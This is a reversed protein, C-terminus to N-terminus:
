NIDMDGMLPFIVKPRKIKNEGELKVLFQRFSKDLEEIDKRRPCKSEIRCKRAQVEAREYFNFIEQWSPTGGFKLVLKIAGFCVRKELYLCNKRLQFLKCESLLLDMEVFDDLHKIEHGLYLAQNIPDKPILVTSKEEDIPIFIEKTLSNAAWEFINKKSSPRPVFIANRKKAEELLRSILETKALYKSPDM